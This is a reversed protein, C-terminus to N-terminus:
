KEQLIKGVLNMLENQRIPKKLIYFKDAVEAPLEEKPDESTIILPPLLNYKQMELFVEKLDENYESIILGYDQINKVISNEEFRIDFGSKSLLSQLIRRYSFVSEYILIKIGNSMLLANDGTSPRLDISKERKCNINFTFTTGKGVKSRVKITGCMLEILEKATV